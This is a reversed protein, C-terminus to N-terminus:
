CSRLATIIDLPMELTIDALEDLMIERDKGEAGWLCNYAPIGIRQAAFTDNVENGFAICNEPKTQLVELAKIFLSSDGNDKSARKRGLAYCGIIHNKDFIDQWGFAKIAAIVRDKTNATVIATRIRHQRIYNIVEDMGEWIPCGKIHNLYEKRGRKWKDSGRPPNKFLYEYQKLQRSDILTGDFDFIAIKSNALEKTEKNMKYCDKNAVFM